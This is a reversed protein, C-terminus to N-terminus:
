ILFLKEKWTHNDKKQSIFWSKTKEFVVEWFPLNYESIFIIYWKEKLQLVYKYFNDYNFKTEYAITWKYPPDMYIICENPNPLIVERYDQNNIEISQISELSELRELNQLRELGQLREINELRQLFKIDKPNTFDWREKKLLDLNFEQYFKRIIKWNSGFKYYRKNESKIFESFDDDPIFCDWIAEYKEFHWLKEDNYIKIYKKYEEENKSFIIKHTIYKRKEINKWYIYYSRNNWFSWTTLIMNEKPTKNQKNKIEFFDERTIFKEKLDKIFNDDQVAIFLDIIDKEIENYIVKEFFHTANASMSWGWWFLDVFIKRNPAKENMIKFLEFSISQKNWVRQIYRRQKM